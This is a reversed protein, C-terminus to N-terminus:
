RGALIKPNFPHFHARFTQIKIQKATKRIPNILEMSIGQAKIARIRLKRYQHMWQKRM